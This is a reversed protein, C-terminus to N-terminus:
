SAMVVLANTLASVAFASTLACLVGAMAAALLADRQSAAHKAVAPYFGATLGVSGALAIAWFTLQALSM